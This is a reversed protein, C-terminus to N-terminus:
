KQFIYRGKYPKQQNNKFYRSIISSEMDLARAAERISEYTTTLNTKKDFVQIKQNPTGSGEIKHMGKKFRGSNEIEKQADRIKQKTEESHKRARLKALTEETHRRARFKGLTEDSHKYGFSSGAKLLINYEPQLLDLYFQERAIVNLPECYEIIELKFNSHGYKLLARNIAMSGELRSLRSTDYYEKLRRSLDVSSGIYQKGNLNNTWMYIGGKGKNEKLIYQKDLDSNEYLKLPIVALLFSSNSENLFGCFFIILEDVWLFLVFGLIAYSFLQVRLSPNRAVCIKSVQAGFVVGIVVGARILRTALGTCIIKSFKLMM